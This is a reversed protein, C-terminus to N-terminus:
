QKFATAFHQHAGFWAKQKIRHLSRKAQHTVTEVGFVVWSCVCGLQVCLGPGVNIAIFGSQRGMVKVLGIGRLQSSAEVQPSGREMSFARPM